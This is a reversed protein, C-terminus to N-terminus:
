KCIESEETRNKVGAESKVDNGVFGRANKNQKEMKKKKGSFGKTGKKTGLLITQHVISPGQLLWVQTQTIVAGGEPVTPKPVIAENRQAPTRM